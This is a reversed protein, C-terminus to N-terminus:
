LTNRDDEVRKLISESNEVTAEVSNKPNLSQIKKSVLKSYKKKKEKRNPQNLLFIMYSWREYNEKLPAVMERLAQVRDPDIMKQLAQEEWLQVEKKMKTYQNCIMDYYKQIHKVAM